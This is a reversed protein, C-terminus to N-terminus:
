WGLEAARKRAQTVWRRVTADTRDLRPLMWRIPRGPAEVLAQQWLDWVMRHRDDLDRLDWRSRAVPQGESAYWRAPAEGRLARGSPLRVARLDRVSVARGDRREVQVGAVAVGDGAPALRVLVRLHRPQGDYAAERWEASGADIVWLDPETCEKPM